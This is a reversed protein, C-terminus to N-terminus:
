ARALQKLDQDTREMADSLLRKAAPTMARYMLDDTAKKCRSCDTHREVTGGCRACRTWGSKVMLTGIIRAV